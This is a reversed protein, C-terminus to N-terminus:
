YFNSIDLLVRVKESFSDGEISGRYTKSAGIFPAVVISVTASGSKPNGISVGMGTNSTVELMTEVVPIVGTCDVAADVGFIKTLSKIVAVIDANASNFTNTAGLARALDLRSENIDVAIITSISATKAAMIAACGVGGIGFIAITKVGRRHPEIVNLVAGAGTQAGCGLAALTPLPYDKNVPV